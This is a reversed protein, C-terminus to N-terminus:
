FWRSSVQIVVWLGIWVGGLIRGFRDVWDRAPGWGDGCAQVLLCAAVIPVLRWTATLSILFNQMKAATAPTIPGALQGLRPLWQILFAWVEFLASVLVALGVAMGATSEPGGETTRPRRLQLPIIALSWSWLLDCATTFVIESTPRKRMGGLALNLDNMLRSLGLGVATAAVLIMVDLIGLRSAKDRLM